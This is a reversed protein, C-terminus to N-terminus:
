FNIASPPLAPFLACCKHLSPLLLSRLCVPPRFENEAQDDGCEGDGGVLHDPVGAVNPVVINVDRTIRQQGCGVSELANPKREIRRRLIEREDVRRKAKLMSKPSEVGRTVM